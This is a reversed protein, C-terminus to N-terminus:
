RAPCRSAPLLRLGRWGHEVEAEVVRGAGLAAAAADAIVATALRDNIVPPVGATYEVDAEAGTGAVVDHVLEPVLSPMSRWADSSLVRM